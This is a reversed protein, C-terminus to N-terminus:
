HQKKISAIAGAEVRPSKAVASRADLRLHLAFREGKSCQPALGDKLNHVSVEAELLHHSHLM